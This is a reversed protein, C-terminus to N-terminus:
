TTPGTQRAYSDPMPVVDLGLGQARLRMAVDGTVLRSAGALAELEGCVGLIEEDADAPRERPADEVWVEITTAARFELPAGAVGVWGDIRRIAARAREALEARRRNYKHMDLEEIVRLPV